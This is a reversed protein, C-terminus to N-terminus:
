LFRRFIFMQVDTDDVLGTLTKVNPLSLISCAKNSPNSALTYYIMMPVDVFAPYRELLFLIKGTGWEANWIYEVEMDLTLLCDYILLAFSCVACSTLLSSHPHSFPRGNTYRVIQLLTAARVQTDM